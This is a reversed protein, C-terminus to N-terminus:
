KNWYIVHRKDTSNVELEFISTICWNWEVAIASKDTDKLLKKFSKVQSSKTVIFIYDPALESKKNKKNKTADNLIFDDITLKNMQNTPVVKIEKIGHSKLISSIVDVGGAIDNVLNINSIDAREFLKTPLSTMKLLKEQDIDPITYKSVELPIEKNLQKGRHIIKLLDNIFEPQLAYKLPHFSFSTLFKATRMKKPAIITNLKRVNEDDIDNYIRIGLMKLLILDLEDYNEQAGTCVADIHYPLRKRHPHNADDVHNNSDESVVKSLLEKAQHELKKRRELQALEEPLLSGTKKRKSNRQFENLSEIDSHLRQAAKAKAARRSGGSSLLHPSPTLSSSPTQSKTIMVDKSVSIPQASAETGDKRRLVSVGDSKADEQSLGKFLDSYSTEGNIEEGACAGTALIKEPQGLVQQEKNNFNLPSITKAADDNIAMEKAENNEEEIGEVKKNTYIDNKTKIEQSFDLKEKEADNDNVSVQQEQVDNENEIYKDESKPPAEQQLKPDSAIPSDHQMIDDPIQMSEPLSQPEKIQTPMSVVIDSIEKENEKEEFSSSVTIIDSHLQGLSRKLGGSVPFEQFDSRMPDLKSGSRYCEELWLHNMVICKDKWKKATEFKKGFAFQSVLHTNKRSLEATSFGGLIDTLRQIYFRQQGFYNTYTLILKNTEFIKKKFPSFILRSKPLTFDNCSWMYFIWLMNGLHIPLNSAIECEKSNISDGIYCDADCDKIDSEDMHRVVTGGNSQLFEILTAYLYKNLSIDMGIIFRHGQFITSVKEFDIDNVANWLDHQNESSTDLDDNPFVTHMEEDQLVSLEKFCQIIWTPYVFKILSTKGFGIVAKIAPDDADKTILHTTKNSLYDICTGGLAHIMETYFIYESNNFSHRSVYIQFNKFIHRSDPSFTSTRVHRKTTICIHIWEPTVVPILLDFAALHYFSFDSSDCIIFHIEDKGGYKRIFWSKLDQGPMDYDPLYQEYIDCRNCSQSKLLAATSTAADIKDSKTVVILFNLNQFVRFDDPM